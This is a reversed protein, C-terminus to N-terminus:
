YYLIDKKIELSLKTKSDIIDPQLAIVGAKRSNAHCVKRREKLKLRNTDKFDTNQLCCMSSRKTQKICSVIEAKQNNLGNVNLIISITPIVNEM